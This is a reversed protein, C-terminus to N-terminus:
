KDLTPANQFAEKLELEDLYRKKKVAVVRQRFIPKELAKAATNRKKKPRQHSKNPKNTKRPM